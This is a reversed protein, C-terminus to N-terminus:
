CPPPKAKGQANEEGPLSPEMSMSSSCGHRSVAREGTAGDGRRMAEGRPGARAHQSATPRCHIGRDGGRGGEADHIRVVDREATVEHGQDAVRSAAHADDIRGAAGRARDIGVLQAGSVPVREGIAADVRHGYRATQASPRRQSVEAAPERPAFQELVRVGVGGFTVRQRARDRAGQRVLGHGQLLVGPETGDEERM